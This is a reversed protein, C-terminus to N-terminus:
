PHQYKLFYEPHKPKPHKPYDNIVDQSRKQVHKRATNCREALHDKWRELRCILCGLVRAVGCRIRQTLRQFLSPCERSQPEALHEECENIAKM